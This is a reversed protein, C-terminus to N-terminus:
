YDATAEMERRRPRKIFMLRLRETRIATASRVSAYADGARACFTVVTGSRVPFCTRSCNALWAAPPTDPSEMATAVAM